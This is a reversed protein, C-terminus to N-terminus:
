QIVCKKHKRPTRPSIPQQDEIHIEIGHAGPQITYIKSNSASFETQKKGNILIHIVTKEEPLIFSVVHKSQVFVSAEYGPLLSTAPDKYLLHINTNTVNHFLANEQLKEYMGYTHTSISMIMVAFLLWNPKM